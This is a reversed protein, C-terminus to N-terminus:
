RAALTQRRSRAQWPLRDRSLSRHAVVAGEALLTIGVSLLIAPGRTAASSAGVAISLATVALRAAVTAAWLALTAPRYRMWPQGECVFVAVTTGRALGMVASVALGAAILAVDVARLGRGAAGTFQLLGYGSLVAPLLLLRRAEIRRGRWRSALVYGMAALVLLASVVTIM